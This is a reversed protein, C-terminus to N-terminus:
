SVMITKNDSRKEQRQARLELIRSKAAEKRQQISLIPKTSEKKTSPNVGLRHRRYWSVSARSSVVDELEEDTLQEYVDYLDQCVQEFDCLHRTKPSALKDRLHTQASLYRFLFKFLHARVINSSFGGTGPLPPYLRCWSLYDVAYQFQQQLTQRASWESSDTTFIGPNELLGESSMVAVAGTLKRIKDVDAHHEVGGNAVVPFDPTHQQAIQIAQAIEDVHCAGVAM